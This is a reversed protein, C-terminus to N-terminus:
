QHEKCTPCIQHDEYMGIMEDGCCSFQIEDEMSYGYYHEPAGYLGTKTEELKQLLGERSLNSLARRISTLPVERFKNWVESATMKKHARFLNYIFEEQTKCDEKRKEVYDKNQGTSNHYHNTKM